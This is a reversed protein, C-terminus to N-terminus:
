NIRSNGEGWIYNRQVAPQNSNTWVTKYSNNRSVRRKAEEINEINIKKMLFETNQIKREELELSCKHTRLCVVYYPCMRHRDTM